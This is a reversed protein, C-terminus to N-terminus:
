RVEFAETKQTTGSEVALHRKQRGVSVFCMAQKIYYIRLVFYQNIYFLLSNNGVSVGFVVWLLTVYYFNYYKGKTPQVITRKLIEPTTIVAIIYFQRKAEASKVAVEAM